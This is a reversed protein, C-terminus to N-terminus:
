NLLTNHIKNTIDNIKQDLYRFRLIQEASTCSRINKESLNRYSELINKGFNDNSYQFKKFREHHNLTNKYNQKENEVFSASKKKILIEEELNVKKILKKLNEFCIMVATVNDM